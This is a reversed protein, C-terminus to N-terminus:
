DMSKINEREVSGSPVGHYKLIKKAAMPKIALTNNYHDNIYSLQRGMKNQLPVYELEGQLQCCCHEEQWIQQSSSPSRTTVSASMLIGWPFFAWINGALRLFWHKDIGWVSLMM